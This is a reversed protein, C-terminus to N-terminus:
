EHRLTVAPDVRLARAVPLAAAVIATACTVAIAGALTGPDRPSLGFLLSSLIPGGIVSATVGTALGAVLPIGARHSLLRLIDGRGAGVARRVGIERTRESVVYSFVGAIGVAALILAVLGLSGAIAAGIRPAQLADEFGASVARETVVANADLEAVVTRVTQVVAPDTRVILNSAGDGIPQYFTPEVPTLSDVHADAVVGTVIRDNFRQGVAEGAPWLLRAFAENVVVEGPVASDFLRGRRVPVRLVTFYEPSVLHVRIGPFEASTENRRTVGTVMRGNGFPLLATFGVPGTGARELAGSLAINFARRADASEARREIAVATVGMLDFGPDISAARAAGRAMSTAAVVLAVSIAVQVALLTARLRLGGDLTVRTGTIRRTGRFAPTLGTIVTTLATMALSFLLLRSDVEFTVEGATRPLAQGFLMGPLLSAVVLAVTGAALAALLSETMLQRIVRPRSAGLSLRIGIEPRRAIARALQLNGLNACALLLVLFVGASLLGFIRVVQPAGGRPENLDRTDTVFMGQNDGAEGPLVAARFQRDLASLEAEASTQSAGPKLRGALGVCCHEARAFLERSFADAPFLMPLTAFPLWVEPMGRGVSLLTGPATVGIVVLPLGNIGISRGVVNPDAGLRGQWFRHSLVVVPESRGTNDEDERFGRGLAFPIRLTSFFNGSVFHGGLNRNGPAAGDLTLDSGERSAVLEVTGSRDALYRYEVFSVNRRDGNRGVHFARILEHAEPLAWPRLLLVNAVSFVATNLGIAIILIALTTAAYLPNRRLHRLAYRLDQWISELWTGIWIRRAHEREVTVNGLRRAALVRASQAQEGRATLQDELMARHVELERRLDANFHRYKIRAHLRRLWRM